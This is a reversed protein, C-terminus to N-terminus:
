KSDSNNGKVDKLDDGEEEMMADLEKNLDPDNIMEQTKKMFEEM